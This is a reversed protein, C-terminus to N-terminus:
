IKLLVTKSRTKLLYSKLKNERILKLTYELTYEKDNLLDDFTPTVKYDPLVGNVEDNNNCPMYVKSLATICFM